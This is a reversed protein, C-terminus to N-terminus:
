ISSGFFELRLESFLISAANDPATFNHKQTARRRYLHAGNGPKTNWGACFFLKESLALIWVVRYMRM